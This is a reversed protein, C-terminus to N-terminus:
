LLVLLVQCAAASYQSLNILTQFLKQKQEINNRGVVFLLPFTINESINTQEFNAINNKSVVFLLPFTINKSM